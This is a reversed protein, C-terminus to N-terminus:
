EGCLNERNWEREPKGRKYKDCYGIPCNRRQHTRVIYYCASKNYGAGIYTHYKCSKCISPTARIM